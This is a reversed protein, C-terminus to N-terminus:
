LRKVSVPSLTSAFSLCDRSVNTDKCASNRPSPVTTMIWIVSFFLPSSTHFTKFFVIIFQCVLNNSTTVIYIIILLLIKSKQNKIWRLICMFFIASFSLVEISQIPTWTWTYKEVTPTINNSDNNCYTLSIHYLTNTCNKFSFYSVDSVCDKKKKPEEPGYIEMFDFCITVWWTPALGTMSLSWLSALATSISLVTIATPKLPPAQSSLWRSFELNGTVM